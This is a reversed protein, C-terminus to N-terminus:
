AKTTGTANRPTRHFFGWFHENSSIEYFKLTKAELQTVGFQAAREYQYADPYMEIDKKLADMDIKHPPKNRTKKEEIKKSWNYVAQKSVGFRQAVKSFSLSEKERIKM